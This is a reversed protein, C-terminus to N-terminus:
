PEAMLEAVRDVFPQSLEPACLGRVTTVLRGDPDILLLNPRDTDLDLATAWVRDMDILVSIGEPVRQLLTATVSDETAKSDSPVDTVRIIHVHDVRNRLEREWPKINRRTKATVVMVVVVHGRHGALSDTTGYQDTLEVTRVADIGATPGALLAVTTLTHVIAALM